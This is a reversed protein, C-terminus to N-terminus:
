IAYKGRDQYKQGVIQAWLGPTTIRTVQQFKEGSLSRDCRPEDVPVITVDQKNYAEQFMRLLDLKTVAPSAVQYLGTLRDEGIITAVVGSLWNTTVGSFIAKNHGQIPGQQKLFWELLGFHNERERGIISTRITLANMAGKVEGLYKTLGYVDKADCEDQETYNGKKGSFVCDTSFHVLYSGQDYCLGQLFHPFIANVAVSEDINLKRQKVVGVCNVVVSPLYRLMISRIEAADTADFDKRSLGVVDPYHEQLTEVMKHGLMGGSGLVLIKM